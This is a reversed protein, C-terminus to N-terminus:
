CFIIYFHLGGGQGGGGPFFFNYFRVIWAHESLFSPQVNIMM